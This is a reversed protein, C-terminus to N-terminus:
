SKQQPNFRQYVLNFVIFIEFFHILLLNSLPPLPQNQVLMSFYFLHPLILPLGLFLSLSDRSQAEWSLVVTLSFCIAFGMIVLCFAAFQTSNFPMLFFHLMFAFSSLAMTTVVVGLILRVALFMLKHKSTALVHPISRTQGQHWGLAILRQSTQLSAVAFVMSVLHNQGRALLIAVTLIVGAMLVETIMQTRRAWILKLECLVFLNLRGM